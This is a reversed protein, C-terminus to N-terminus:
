MKNKASKKRTAGETIILEDHHNPARWNEGPTGIVSPAFAWDVAKMSVAIEQVQNSSNSRPLLFDVEQIALVEPAIKKIASALSAKSGPPIAM